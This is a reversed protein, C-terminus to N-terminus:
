RSRRRVAWSVALHILYGAAFCLPMVIMWRVGTADAIWFSMLTIIVAIAGNYLDRWGM